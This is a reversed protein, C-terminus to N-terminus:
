IEHKVGQMNRCVFQIVSEFENMKKEHFAKREENTANEYMNYHYAYRKNLVDLPSELAINEFKM